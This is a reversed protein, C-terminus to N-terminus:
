NTTINIDGTYARLKVLPGGGNVRGSLRARGNGGALTAIEFGDNARVRGSTTIADLLLASGKDMKLDVKGDRTNLVCENSVTALRANINGGSTRANVAGSVGNITIDGATTAIDLEGGVPGAEINGRSTLIAASQAGGALTVDGKSTKLNLNCDRPVTVEFHVIVPAARFSLRTYKASAKVTNGSQQMVLELSKAIDDADADGAAKPFVQRAVIRVSQVDGVGIRVSGDTAEVFLKSGPKVDFTKEVTREIKASAATSFFALSSVAAAIFTTKSLMFFNM